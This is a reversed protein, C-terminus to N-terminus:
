PRVTSTTSGPAALSVPEPLIEPTVFILLESDAITATSGRFFQGIFPLDALLPVRRVSSRDNKKVLGGIVLTERNGIRRVVSINQTTIIPITGGAPNPVESVIDQIFPSVTMTISNDGNIRPIVFLGSVVQVPNIQPITIGQGGQGFAVSNTIIPVTTGITLVVPVNNTTTAMPSNILRGKGEVLSTRLAAVLNGTAYNLAVEGQAFAPGTSATLSGRAIDFNIGFTRLDDQQVTIFEARISLQRPAIDLLRVIEKLERIGEDTGRVILTNDVDYALVSDIGEPLLNVAQQGGGGGQGLGGGGQGLGGGGQGLGGGGGRQGGGLGGGGFGGGIGGRQGEEGAGRDGPRPAVADNGTPVVPPVRDPAQADKGFEITSPGKAGQFNAFPNRFSKGNLDYLIGIELQNVLAPDRIQEIYVKMETARSHTLRIKEIRRRTNVAPAPDVQATTPAVSPKEAQKPGIVYIGGDLEVSAGAVRAMQKLVVDLSKNQLMLTVPAYPKDSSLIVIEAGTQAQLMKVARTLDAEVLDIHQVIRQGISAEQAHCVSPAVTLMGLGMTLALAGATLGASRSSFGM